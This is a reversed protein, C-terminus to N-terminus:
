REGRPSPRDILHVDIGRTNDIAKQIFSASQEKAFLLHRISHTQCFDIIQEPLGPGKLETYKAGLTEALAQFKKM